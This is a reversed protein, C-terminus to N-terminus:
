NFQRSHSTKGRFISAFGGLGRLALWGCVLEIDWLCVDSSAINHSFVYRLAPPVGDRFIAVIPWPVRECTPHAESRRHQLHRQRGHGPAAGRGVAFFDACVPAPRMITGTQGWCHFMQSANGQVVDLVVGAGDLLYSHLMDHQSECTSLKVVKTAGKEENQTMPQFIKIMIVSYHTRCTLRDADASSAAAPPTALAQSTMLPLPLM